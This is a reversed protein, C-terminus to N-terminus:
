PNGEGILRAFRLLQASVKLGSRKIGPACIEFRVHKDEDLYLNILVGHQALGDSDGITLVPRNAIPTVIQKLRPREGPAIFALQCASLDTAGSKLRRLEVRRDKLQPSREAVRRLYPEIPSDGLVCLVFPADASAFAENPWDVFHTFREVVEAKVAYELQEDARAAPSAALALALALTATCRRLGGGVASM